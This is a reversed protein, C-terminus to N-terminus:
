NQDFNFENPYVLKKLSSHFVILRLFELLMNRFFDHQKLRDCMISLFTEFPLDNFSHNVQPYEQFAGMSEQPQDSSGALVIM